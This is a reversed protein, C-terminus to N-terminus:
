HPQLSALGGSAEKCGLAGTRCVWLQACAAWSPLTHRHSHCPWSTVPLEMEGWGCQVVRQWRPQLGPLQVPQRGQTVCMQRGQCQHDRPCPPAPAPLPPSPSTSPSSPPSPSLPPIPIPFLIPIPVDKLEVRGMDGQLRGHGQIPRSSRGSM